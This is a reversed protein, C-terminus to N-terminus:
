KKVLGKLVFAVNAPREALRRMNYGFWDRGYPVYVRVNYGEKVLEERLEARMGYLMQFEFQERPINHEDTYQKTFEIIADDHSGIATFHGHDLHMAIVKKLNEDVDTKNPYAVEESEKYAGKVFRINPNYPDLREVDSVTRYLYSQLVTGLLDYERKLTEFITLTQECRAYDEMDITVLVQHKEGAELIRRMNHLVLKESIDLGMSTMKLSVQSDLNLKDIVKITKITELTREEAESEETVYEGLHDLTVAMGRNNLTRINEAAHALDPGAVFRSAGFKFGYKMALSKLLQNNSLFLFFQRMVKEMVNEGLTDLM